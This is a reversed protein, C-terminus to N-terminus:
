WLVALWGQGNGKKGYEGTLEVQCVWKETFFGGKFGFPKLLPERIIDLNVNAIQM